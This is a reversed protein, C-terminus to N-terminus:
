PEALLDTMLSGPVNPLGMMGLVTNAADGNRIPQGVAEYTPCTDGPDRRREGVLAYLDAGPTYGPGMVFFPIQYNWQDLNDSHGDDDGGHDATFILGAPAEPDATLALDLLRGLWGDVRKLADYWEPTSWDVAHGVYDLEAIHFFVLDCAGAAADSEATAVLLETNNEAIVVRDIKNRGNDPPVYDRAGAQPGYSNSYLVFKPKGSYLCTRRGRDHAVDFISEIYTLNPNGSNHLTAGQAPMSDQMYGHWQWAPKGKVASVPLGTLMSTHGPLTMTFNYDARANTTSAGLSALREFNRLEFLKMVAPLTRGRLGDASILWARAATARRSGEAGGTGAATAGGGAGSNTAAGAEARPEGRARDDSGGVARSTSDASSCATLTAAWFWAMKGLRRMGNM